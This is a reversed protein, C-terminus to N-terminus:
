NSQINKYDIENEFDAKYNDDCPISSILEGDIHLYGLGHKQCWEFAMDWSLANINPGRFEAMEGDLPNIAYIKTTFIKM